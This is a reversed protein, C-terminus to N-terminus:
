RFHRVDQHRTCGTGALRRQHLRHDHRQGQVMVTDAKIGSPFVAQLYHDEISNTLSTTIEVWPEGKRLVITNEVPYSKMVPSRGKDDMMRFM